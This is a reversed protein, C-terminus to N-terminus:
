VLAESQSIQGVQMYLDVLGQGIVGVLGGALISYNCKLKNEKPSYKETLKINKKGYEEGNTNNVIIKKKYLFIKFNELIKHFKWMDGLEDLIKREMRYVKVQSINMEKAIQTQTKDEFYRQYILNRDDVNLQCYWGFKNFRRKINKKM